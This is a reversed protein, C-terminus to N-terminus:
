VSFEAPFRVRPNPLRSPAPQLNGPAVEEAPTLQTRYLRHMSETLGMLMPIYPLYANSGFFCAVCYGSLGATMCIASGLLYRTDETPPLHRCGKRVAGLHRFSLVLAAMYFFFGILGTESSIQTYSNHSAMWKPNRGQKQYEIASADMFDGPGVGFVPHRFTYRISERLAETRATTSGRAGSPDYYDFAATNSEVITKFRSLQYAPVFVLVVPLLLALSVVLVLKGRAELAFLFILGIAVFDLLGGRSGTWLVAIAIFLVSVLGALRTILSSRHLFPLLCFPLGILLMSALDNANSLTGLQYSLRNQVM